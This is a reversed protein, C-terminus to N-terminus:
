SPLLGPPTVSTLSLMFSCNHPCSSANDRNDTRIIASVIQLVTHSLVIEGAQRLQLFIYTHM